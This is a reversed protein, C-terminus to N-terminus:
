QRIFGLGVWAGMGDAQGRYVNCLSTWVMKPSLAKWERVRTHREFWVTM